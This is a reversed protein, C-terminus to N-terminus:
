ANWILAFRISPHFTDGFAVATVSTIISLINWTSHLPTETVYDCVSSSHVRTPPIILYGLSYPRHLLHVVPLPVTHFVNAALYHSGTPPSHYHLSSCGYTYHVRCGFRLHCPLHTRRFGYQSTYCARHPPCCLPLWCGHNHAAASHLRQVSRRTGVAYSLSVALPHHHYWTRPQHRYIPCARLMTCACSFTYRRPSPSPTIHAHRTCVARPIALCTSRLRLATPLFHPIGAHPHSFVRLRWHTGRPSHAPLLLTARFRLLCARPPVVSTSRYFSCYLLPLLRYRFGYYDVYPRYLCSGTTVAGTIM